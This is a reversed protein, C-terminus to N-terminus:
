KVLEKVKPVLHNEIELQDMFIKPYHLHFGHKLNDKQIYSPKSLFVCTLDSNEIEITEKLVRNYINIIQLVQKESYLSSSSSTKIKLDIDILIPVYQQPKETIGYFYNKNEIEQCYLNFFEELTQRSFQFKGTPEIMSTHTIYFGDTYHERLINSILNKNLQANCM